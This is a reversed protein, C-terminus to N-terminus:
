PIVQIVMQATLTGNTAISTSSVLVRNFYKSSSNRLAMETVSYPGSILTLLGFSRTITVIDNPFKAAPSSTCTVDDPAAFSLGADSIENGLEITTDTWATADTGLTIVNPINPLAYSGTDYTSSDFLRGLLLEPGYKVLRNSSFPTWVDNYCLRGKGTTHAIELNSLLKSALEHDDDTVGTDGYIERLVKKYRPDIKM